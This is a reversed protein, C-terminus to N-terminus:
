VNEGSDQQEQQAEIIHRHRLFTWINFCVWCLPALVSPDVYPLERWSEVQIQECVAGFVREEVVEAGVEGVVAQALFGVVAGVTPVSGVWRCQFEDEMPAHQLVRAEGGVGGGGVGDEERVVGAEVGEAVEVAGVVVGAGVVAEFEEFEELFVGGFDPGAAHAM